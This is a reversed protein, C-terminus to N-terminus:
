THAPPLHHSHPNPNPHPNSSPGGTDYNAPLCQSSMINLRTHVDAASNTRTDIDANTVETNADFYPNTGAITAGTGGLWKGQQSTNWLKRNTLQGNEYAYLVEAGIDKGGAGKRKLLTASEPVWVRCSGMQNTSTVVPNTINSQPIPPSFTTGTTSMAACHDCGWDELATLDFVFARNTTRVVLTNTLYTSRPPIPTVNAAMDVAVGQSMNIFTCQECRSNRNGRFYLGVANTDFTLHDRYLTDRAQGGTRGRVLGGYKGNFVINGLFKNNISHHGLLPELGTSEGSKEAINNEFISDTAPYGFVCLDGETPPFSDSGSAPIDM